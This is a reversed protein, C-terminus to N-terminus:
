QSKDGKAKWRGLGEWSPTTVQTIVNLGTVTVSWQRTLISTCLRRPAHPTPSSWIFPLMRGGIKNGIIYHGYMLSAPPHNTGSKSSCMDRFGSSPNVGNSTKIFQRSRFNLMTITILGNEGYWSAWPSYMQYRKPGSKQAICRSLNVGNLTRHFQGFRCNHLTMIIRENAGYQSAYPGFVEISNDLGTTTCCWPCVKQSQVNVEGM